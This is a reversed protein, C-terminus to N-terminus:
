AAAGRRAFHMIILVIALVPLILMHTGEAMLHYSSAIMEAM